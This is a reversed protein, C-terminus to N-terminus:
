KENEEGKVKNEMKQKKQQNIKLEREQKKEKRRTVLTSGIWRVTTM